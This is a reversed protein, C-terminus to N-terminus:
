KRFVLNCPGIESRFKFVFKWCDTVSEREAGSKCFGLRAWSCGKARLAYGSRERCGGSYSRVGPELDGARPGAAVGLASPSRRERAGRRGAGEVVGRGWLAHRFHSTPTPPPSLSPLLGRAVQGLACAGAGAGAGPGGTHPRRYPEKRPGLLGRGVSLTPSM